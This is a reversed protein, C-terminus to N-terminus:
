AIEGVFRVKPGSSATLTLASNEAHEIMQENDRMSSAKRIQSM